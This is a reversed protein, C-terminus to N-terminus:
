SKPLEYRYSDRKHGKIELHGKIMGVRKMGLKEMVKFSAINRTDCTAYMVALNLQDLGFDILAKAAETAYGKNQFDPNIAWGLNAVQSMETERRIGCGGILLGNDKLCIAFEFKYRPSAKSQEVMDAIFKKTDELTNPGWVEYKSFDPNSGYIHVREWDAPEYNRLILRDTKLIM